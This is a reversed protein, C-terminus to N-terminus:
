ARLQKRRGMYVTMLLMFVFWQIKGLGVEFDQWDAHCSKVFQEGQEFRRQADEQCSLVTFEYAGIDCASGSLTDARKEGRADTKLEDFVGDCAEIADRALGAKKTGTIAIANVSSLYGDGKGGENIPLEVLLDTLKGAFGVINHGSDTIVGNTEAGEGDATNGAVISYKISLTGAANQLAGGNVDAHNKVFTTHYLAVKGNNTVVAGGSGTAINNFFSTNFVNLLGSGSAYIAAGNVSKNKGFYARNVKSNATSDYFIAAGNGDAINEDFSAESIDVVGNNTVAIAIGSDVTGESDSSNKDFTVQNLVASADGAVVLTGMGKVVHGSFTAKNVNVQVTGAVYVAAGTVAENATFATNEITLPQTGTAYIAGGRNSAVNEEFLSGKIALVTDHMKIAAGDPGNNAIFHSNEVHVDANVLDLASGSAAKLTLGSFSVRKSGGSVVFLKNLDAGNVETVNVSPRSDTAYIENQSGNFGGVIKLPNTATSMDITIPGELYVGEQVFVQTEGELMANIVGQQITECAQGWTAGCDAHDVGTTSVFRVECADGAGDNDNDTQNTNAILPCNDKEGGLVTTGDVDKLQNDDLIGDNDTDPECADGYGSVHRSSFESSLIVVDQDYDAQGPNSIGVCNDIADDIGDLDDDSECMDGVGDNAFSPTSGLDEQDPNTYGPEPCNDRFDPVGDGDRDGSCLGGPGSPLTGLPHTNQNANAAFPCNDYDNEWEDGDYDNNDNCADGIGNGDSDQQSVQDVPKDLPGNATYQCNDPAADGIGDFDSDTLVTWSDTKVKNGWDVITARIRCIGALENKVQGNNLINCVTPTESTYIINAPQTLSFGSYDEVNLYVNYPAASQLSNTPKGYFKYQRVKITEFVSTKWSVGSWSCCKRQRGHAEIVCHQTDGSVTVQFTEEPTGWAAVTGSDANGSCIGSPSAWGAVQRYSKDSDTQYKITVNFTDGVDVESRASNITTTNWAFSFSSAFIGGLTICLRLIESIKNM